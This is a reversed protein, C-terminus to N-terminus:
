EEFNMECAVEGAGLRTKQGDLSLLHCVLDPFVDEAITREGGVGINGFLVEVLELVGEVIEVGEVNARGALVEDGVVQGETDVVM